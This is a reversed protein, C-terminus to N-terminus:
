YKRPPYSYLNRIKDIQNSKKSTINNKQFNDQFICNLSDKNPVIKHIVLPFCCLPFIRYFKWKSKGDFILKSAIPFITSFKIKFKRGMLNNGGQIMFFFVRPFFLMIHLFNINWNEKLIKTFFKRGFIKRRM